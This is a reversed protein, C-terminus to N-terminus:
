SASPRHPNLPPPPHTCPLRAGSSCCGHDGLVFALSPLPQEPHRRWCGLRRCAVAQLQWCRGLVTGKGGPWSPQGAWARVGCGAWGPEAGGGQHLGRGGVLFRQHLAGRVETVLQHRAGGVANLHLVVALQPHVVHERHELEVAVALAHADDAPRGVARELEEALTLTAAPAAGPQQLQVERARVAREPQAAPQQQQL